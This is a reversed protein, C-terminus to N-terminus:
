VGRIVTAQAISLLVAGRSDCACGVAHALFGDAGVKPIVCTTPCYAPYGANDLVCIKKSFSNGDESIM